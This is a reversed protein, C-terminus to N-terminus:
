PPSGGMSPSGWHGGDRVGGMRFAIKEDIVLLLDELIDFGLRAFLGQDGEVGNGELARDAQDVQELGGAQMRLPNSVM